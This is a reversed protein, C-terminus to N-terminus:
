RVLSIQEVVEEGFAGFLALGLVNPMLFEHDGQWALNSEVFHRVHAPVRLGVRWGSSVSALFCACLGKRGAKERWRAGHAVLEGGHVMVLVNRHKVILVNRTTHVLLVVVVVLRWLVPRRAM